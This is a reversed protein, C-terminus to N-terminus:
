ICRRKILRMERNQIARNNSHVRIEITMFSGATGLLYDTASLFLNYGHLRGDDRTFLEM